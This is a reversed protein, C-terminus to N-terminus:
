KGDRESTLEGSELEEPTHEGVRMRSPSVIERVDVGREYAEIAEEIDFLVGIPNRNFAGTGLWENMPGKEGQEGPFCSCQLECCNHDPDYYDIAFSSGHNIGRYPVIGAKKLRKYTAALDAFSAYSFAIHHMGCFEPAGQKERRRLDDFAFVVIKHHEDDFTMFRMGEADLTPKMDLVTQWWDAVAEFNNTGIALHSIHTPRIGDGLEPVHSTKAKISREAASGVYNTLGLRSYIKGAMKMLQTM